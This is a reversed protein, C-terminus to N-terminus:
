GSMGTIVAELPRFGFRELGLILFTAIGYPYRRDLASDWYCTSGVAAGLFEAPGNRYCGTGHPDM